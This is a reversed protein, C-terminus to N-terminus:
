YYYVLKIHADKEASPNTIIIEGMEGIRGSSVDDYSGFLSIERVECYLRHDQHAYTTKLQIEVDSIIRLGKYGSVTADITYSSDKVITREETIITNEIEQIFQNTDIINEVEDNLEKVITEVVIKKM